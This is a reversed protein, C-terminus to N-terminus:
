RKLQYLRAVAYAPLCLLAHQQLAAHEAQIEDAINIYSRRSVNAIRPLLFRGVGAGVLPVESAIGCRQILRHLCSQILQRQAQQFALALSKWDESNGDGLEAGVMRAVRRASALWSKDQGDATPAVDEDPPLDHSLRYIDATTAFYEAAVNTPKGQWTVRQCLAMLPTRVVGTYLLEDAQLRSADDRGQSMVQGDKLWILDTTTSGIDLLICEAHHQALWMGSALWNASAIQHAHASAQSLPVFGQTATFLRANPLIGQLLQCIQQVGDQRSAFLDVLEATMTVAHNAGEANLMRLAQQLSQALVDLGQWVPCPLQVVQRLQGRENLLCAKLHAGGIDWGIVSTQNQSSSM